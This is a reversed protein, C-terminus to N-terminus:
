LSPKLQQIRLLLSSVLRRIHLVACQFLGMGNFALAPSGTQNPQWELAYKAYQYTWGAGLSLQSKNM